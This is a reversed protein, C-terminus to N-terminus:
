KQDTKKDDRRRRCNTICVFQFLHSVSSMTIIKCTVDINIKTVEATTKECRSGGDIAAVVVVLVVFPAVVVSVVVVVSTGKGVVSAREVKVTGEVVAGDEVEIECLVVVVVDVVVADVVVLVGIM